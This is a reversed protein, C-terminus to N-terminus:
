QTDVKTVLLQNEIIELVVVQTGTPIEDGESVAELERLAGQVKIQVKGAGHGKPPIRLYVTGTQHYANQLELNGSQQLRLMARALRWALWAALIGSALGAAVALFVGSGSKSAALGTWGMFMGFALLSRVSLLAFTVDSDPVHADADHGGFAQLALYVFFLLNSFFGVLFFIQEAAQLQLFWSTIDDIM